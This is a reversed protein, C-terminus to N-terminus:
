PDEQEANSETSAEDTATWRRSRPNWIGTATGDLLPDIFLRVMALAEDLTRSTTLLSRAAEAAYGREWLPRDPIDFRSPLTIGRRGAESRVARIQTQAEVSAGGVISVLDVLDRYRTSPMQMPGYRQLTAVIKDAIHDVLPYARYGHQAFDPLAVRALPPVDEPESTM